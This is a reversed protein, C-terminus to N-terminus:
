PGQYVFKKSCRDLTDEQYFPGVKDSNDCWVELNVTFKKASDSM